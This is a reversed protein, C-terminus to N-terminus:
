AARKRATALVKARKHAIRRCEICESRGDPRHYLTEPSREHGNPCKGHERAARSLRAPLPLVFRGKRIADGTNQAPTGIWIHFPNCCPPNDCWHCALLGQPITTNYHLEWAMRHASYHGGAPKPHRGYGDSSKVGQWLWCEGQDAKNIKAWFSCADSCFIGRTVEDVLQKGCHACAGNFPECRKRSARHNGHANVALNTLSLQQALFSTATGGPGGDKGIMRRNEAM